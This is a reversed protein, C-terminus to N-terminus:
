IGSMQEEDLFFLWSTGKGPYLLVCWFFVVVMTQLVNNFSNCNIIDSGKPTDVVPVACEDGEWFWVTEPVM